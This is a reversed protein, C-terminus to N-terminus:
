FVFFFLTPSALQPILLSIPLLQQIESRRLFFVRFASSTLTTFCPNPNSYIKSSEGMILGFFFVLQSEMPIRSPGRWVQPCVYQITQRHDKFLNIRVVAKNYQPNASQHIEFDEKESYRLRRAASWGPGWYDVLIIIKFNVVFFFLVKFNTEPSSFLSNNNGLRFFFVRIVIISNSHIIKPHFWQGLKFYIPDFIFILIYFQSNQSMIEFSFIDWKIAM